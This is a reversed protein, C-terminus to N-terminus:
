NQRAILKVTAPALREMPNLSVSQWSREPDYTVEIRYRHAKAHFAALFWVMFSKLGSSNMYDVDEFHLGVVPVKAELVAEHLRILHPQVVTSELLDLTGSCTVEWRDAREALSVRFDIPLDTPFDFGMDPSNVM